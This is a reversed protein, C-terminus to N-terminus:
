VLAIRLSTDSIEYEGCLNTLNAILNDLLMVATIKQPTVADFWTV